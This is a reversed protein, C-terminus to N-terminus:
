GEKTTMTSGPLRQAKARIYAEVIALTHTAEKDDLSTMLAPLIPVPSSVYHSPEDSLRAICSCRIPEVHGCYYLDATTEEHEKGGYLPAKWTFHGLFTCTNCDHAWRPKEDM